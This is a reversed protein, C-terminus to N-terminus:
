AVGYINMVAVLRTDFVQADTIGLNVVLREWEAYILPSDPIFRFLGRIRVLHRAAQAPQLALGGRAASRTAVSWFEQLNQSSIFLTDGQEYLVRLARRAAPYQPSSRQLRRLLVNTDVLYD